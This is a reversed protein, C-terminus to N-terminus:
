ESVPSVDYRKTIRIRFFQGCSVFPNCYPDLDNDLITITNIPLLGLM